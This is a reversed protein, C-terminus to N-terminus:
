WIRHVGFADFKEENSILAINEIQAQAILLRDFPDKHDIDLSGAFGAHDLTIVLPSFDFGELALQGNRLFPTAESLKGLRYKLSIEMASVASIILEASDSAIASRANTSLKDSDLLTWLLTHTDLLLRLDHGL